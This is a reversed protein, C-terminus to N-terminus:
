QNTTILSLYVNVTTGLSLFGNASSYTDASPSQIVNIRSGLKQLDNAAHKLTARNANEITVGELKLYVDCRALVYYLLNLDVSKSPRGFNRTRHIKDLDSNVYCRLSTMATKVRPRNEQFRSTKM